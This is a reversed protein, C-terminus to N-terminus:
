IHNNAKGGGSGGNGAHTWGVNGGGGGISINQQDTHVKGNTFYRRRWWWSHSHLQFTDYKSRWWNTSWLTGNVHEVGFFM